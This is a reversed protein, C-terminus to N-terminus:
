ISGCSRPFPSGAALAEARLDLLGLAPQLRRGVDGARGLLAGGGLDLRQLGVQLALAGAGLLRALLQAEGVLFLQLALALRLLPRDGRGLLAQALDFGCASAASFRTSSASRRASSASARPRRRAPAPGRLRPRRAARAARSSGGLPQPAIAASGALEVDGDDAAAGGPEPRRQARGLLAAADAEDGAGREGLAGAEPGLAAQGRRELGAVRGVAVGGVRDGGAAAEAAGRRHPHQDLLRGARDAVQERAADDEVEVVLAPQREAELAAVRAAADDVGAAALGAVLDGRLQRRHDGVSARISTRSRVEAVASHLSPSRQWPTSVSAPGIAAAAVTSAVPPAAASHRRVVLGRPRSRRRAPAPRRPRRRGRRGRTRGTGGSRARGAPCAAEVADQDGLRDAALARLQEVGGALAEGVLQRGAVRDGRRDEVPM